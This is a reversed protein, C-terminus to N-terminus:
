LATELRAPLHVLANMAFGNVWRARHIVDRPLLISRTSGLVGMAEAFLARVLMAGACRHRGDGFAFQGTDPLRLVVRDGAAISIEAVTAEALATRFVARVPAAAQLLTDLGSPGGTTSRPPEQLATWRQADIRLLFFAAAILTPMTQTLAVLAQITLGDGPADLSGSSQLLQMLQATARAGDSVDGESDSRAADDGAFAAAIFIARTLPEARDVIGSPIGLLVAAVDRCWPRILDDVLDIEDTASSAGVCRGTLTRLRDTMLTGLQGVVEPDPRLVRLAAPSMWWHHPQVVADVSTPHTEPRMGPTGFRADRLVAQIDAARTILWAQRQPDFYPARDIGVEDM